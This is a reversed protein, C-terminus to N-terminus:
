LIISLSSVNNNTSMSSQIQKKLVDITRELSKVKSNLSFNLNKSAQYSKILHTIKNYQGDITNTLNNINNETRDTDKKGINRISGRNNENNGIKSQIINFNSLNEELDLGLSTRQKRSFSENIKNKSNLNKRSKKKTKKNLKEIVNDSKLDDLDIKKDNLISINNISGDNHHINSNRNEIFGTQFKRIDILTEEDINVSSLPDFERNMNKMEELMYHDISTLENKKSNSFSKKKEEIKSIKNEIKSSNQNVQIVNEVEDKVILEYNENKPKIEITSHNNVERSPIKKILKQEQNKYQSQLKQQEKEEEAFHESIITCKMMQIEEQFIKEFAGTQSSANHGKRGIQICRNRTKIKKRPSKVRRDDGDEGEGGSELDKAFVIEGETESNQDQSSTEQDSSTKKNKTQTSKELFNLQDIEEKIQDMHVSKRIKNRANVDEGTVLSKMEGYQNQIRKMEKIKRAMVTSEEKNLELLESSEKIIRTIQENERKLISNMEGITELDQKQYKNALSLNQLKRFLKNCKLNSQGLELKLEECQKILLSCDDKLYDIQQDFLTENKRIKEEFSSKQVEFYKIVHLHSQKTVEVFSNNLDQIFSGKEKCTVESERKVYDYSFAFLYYLQNIVTRFHEADEGANNFQQRLNDKIKRYWQHFRFYKGRTVLMKSQKNWYTLKSLSEIDAYINKSSDSNIKKSTKENSLIEEFKIFIEPDLVKMESKQMYKVVEEINLDIYTDKKVM